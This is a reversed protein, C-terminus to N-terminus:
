IWMIIRSFKLMALLFTSPLYNFVLIYSSVIYIAINKGVEGNRERVGSGRCILGNACPCADFLLNRNYRIGPDNTKVHCALSHFFFVCILFVTLLQCCTRNELLLYLSYNYQSYENLGFSVYEVWACYNIPCLVFGYANISPVNYLSDKKHM